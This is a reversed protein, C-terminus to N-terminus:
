SKGETGRARNVELEHNSAECSSCLISKLTLFTPNRRLGLNAQFYRPGCSVRQGEVEGAKAGEEGENNSLRQLEVMM